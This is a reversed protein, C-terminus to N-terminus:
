NLSEFKDAVADSFHAVLDLARELRRIRLILGVIFLSNFLVAVALLLVYDEINM